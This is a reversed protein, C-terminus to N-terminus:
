HPHVPTWYVLASRISAPWVVRGGERHVLSGALLDRLYDDHETTNQLDLRRKAEGFAEEMDASTWPDWLGTNEMLINPFIGMQLLANYAIQTNPSDFPQGWIHLAANSLVDDPTPSRMILVCMRRTVAELSHVFAAFDAFGYMAHSCLTLDHKEVQAEPWRQQLVRVNEVGAEALNARMIEYMAASPEVVTVQRAYRAMLTAWAGTGGGIDLASLDPNARFLSVVFDRSSDPVAWRRKVEADFGKAKKRWMDESNKAGEPLWSKEQRSSLERWLELWDTAKQM